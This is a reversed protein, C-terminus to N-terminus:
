LGTEDGYAKVAVAEKQDPDDRISAVKDSIEPLSEIDIPKPLWFISVIVVVGLVALLAGRQVVGRRIQERMRKNELEHVSQLTELQVEVQEMESRIELIRAKDNKAADFNHVLAIWKTLLGRMEDNQRMSHEIPLQLDGPAM